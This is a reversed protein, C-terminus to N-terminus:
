VETRDFKSVTTAESLIVCDEAGVRVLTVILEVCGVLKEVPTSLDMEVDIFVGSEDIDVCVEPGDDFSRV